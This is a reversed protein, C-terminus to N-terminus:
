QTLMGCEQEQEIGLALVGLYAHQTPGEVGM